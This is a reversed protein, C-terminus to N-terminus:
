LMQIFEEETLVRVGLQEAKELKSGAAEGALVFDTKKSVSGIVKGGREKILEGAETRTYKVLTGTLVFSKGFFPHDTNTIQKPNEIVIGAAILDDVEQRNEPDAFFEIVSAAVKEGVGNIELLQAMSMVALGEISGAANGLLEAMGKGVHKIGLAHIFRTLTTKRAEDIGALLNEASKQKFGELQLIQDIKLKFVDSLKKVFGYEVLMQAVREGLEDIDLAQKGVAFIIQRLRQEPCGKHNPCRIAVEEEIKEVPCGCSPCCSPMQWRISDTSRRETIVKVVKPIVDGGKEIWVWDGVRIDKREIEDQNHLTARSITSGALLVPELEAVPTLIGTRGVQVTIERIRTTAQEAAFKYAVAYRPNKGTAGLQDWDIYSNVKLVVGDIDFPLTPRIRGTEHIFDWIERENRCLAHKPVAPLGLKEMMKFADDQSNILGSSDQAVAYLAIKLGRRSVEKPDLLKLTGAAANRPNAFLPEGEEEKEKNLALFTEHDLFVEGRVELLDPAGYIVLPLNIITRVNATIEDGETGNGRTIARSLIGNEYIVTVATGDMKFEATLEISERELLKHLRKLFDSVEEENYTNQLSLMPVKHKVVPFKGVLAEGVRQTPSGSSIWEPHEREIEELKKLLQDYEYDSIIPNDEIYYRRNHDWIEKCLIEYDNKTMVKDIEFVLM